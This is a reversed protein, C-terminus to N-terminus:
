WRRRSLVWNRWTRVRRERRSGPPAHLARQRQRARAGTFQEWGKNHIYKQAYGGSLIEFARKAQGRLDIAGAANHHGFWAPTVFDSVLTGDIPYGYQDDEVPDCIEGAWFADNDDQYASNLWPDVAMECIEHSAGVSLSSNDARITDVFIKSIPLGENTLDHYALADAQDTDNLFVVWWTGHAPPTGRPTFTFQASGVGWVANLDKNWQTSLPSMLKHVDADSMSKSENIFAVQIM